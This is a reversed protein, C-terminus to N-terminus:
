IKKRFTGRCERDFNELTGDSAVYQSWYPFSECQEPKVGNISCVNNNLFVCASDKKVRHAYGGSTYFLFREIFDREGINLYESARRIEDPSFFVIGEDRCCKGCRACTFTFAADCKNIRKPKRM